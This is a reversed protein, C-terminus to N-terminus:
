TFDEQLYFVVCPNLLSSNYLSVFDPARPPSSKILFPDQVVWLPPSHSHDISCISLFGINSGRCNHQFIRFSEFPTNPSISNSPSPSSPSATLM